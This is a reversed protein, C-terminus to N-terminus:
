PVPQANLTAAENAALAVTREIMWQSVNPDPRQALEVASSLREDLRGGACHEIEMALKSPALRRVLPLVGRVLLTAGASVYLALTILTLATSGPQLVWDAVAAVVLCTIFVLVTEGIARSLKLRRRRRAYASLLDEIIEPLQLM